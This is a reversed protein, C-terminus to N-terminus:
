EAKMDRRRYTRKPKEIPEWPAVPEAQEAEDESDDQTKVEQVYGLTIFLKAYKRDMELTKDIAYMRGNFKLPKKKVKVLM